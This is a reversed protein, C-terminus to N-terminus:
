EQARDRFEEYWNQVVRVTPPLADESAGVTIFRQGDASIDYPYPTRLLEATRFLKSPSGVSFNPSTTVPIVVLWDGEVYFLENGDHSWRPWGGGNLSVKTKGGGDPFRRVYVEYRGSEDSLYAVFRTDPSFQAAWETFPEQLFLVDEFSGDDDKYERYGIDWKGGLRRDFLLYKEDASWQVPFADTGLTPLLTPKGGLDAPTSLLRWDDEVVKLSTIRDGSPSWIPAVDWHEDFTLQTKVPRDVDHLWIDDSGNKGVVAVRRGDPSLRPMAIMLQSQGISGVKRGGRDRLVLQDAGGRRDLYVLTGDAALSPGFGEPAVLFTEGRPQLTETSVPWAWIGPTLGNGPDRRTLIHGTPSYIGDFGETELNEIEGTDLNYLWRSMLLVLREGQQRGLFHPARLRVDEPISGQKLMKPAGGGSAVEYLNSPSGAGFVITSGDPSWAAGRFTEAYPLECLPTVTGGAVSIKKLKGDALFAILKSDASWSLALGSIYTRSVGQTGDLERPNRRDLDQIWISKEGEGAMYAIHRGNPSIVPDSIEMGPTFSFYLPRKPGPQPPPRLWMVLIIAMAVILLTSLGVLAFRQWRPSPRPRPVRASSGSPKESTLQKRLARLDVALEDVHQYREEPSKAMAKQVIRDLDIPVGVRLATIPEPEQHVIAYAVADEREGEFPLKGTVMEYIAVGLSWIDTRRDTPERRAQEPSMYAPTGLITETKTLRSRDALQALGFDMIKVQGEAALMLNAPKIDRHVIEKQHAAKLGQATQVAIDLAEELKLPRESVKDKLTQGELYAMALFTQGEVEDIEYVPCINQHDLRAAAKAERVFRAKYEPDDLAHAALFKLAVPRDLNTDQAKYVVGMGGEGIKGSIRYHSITRGQSISGDGPQIAPTDAAPQPEGVGAPLPPAKEVPYIFRYGRRPVTEVFRPTTASDDLVERLKQIATNVGKEFDVFTGNPWLRARLEERAVVDGPRELLMLLVQFPQEQLRLKVGNKRLEGSRPDMEFVGFRLPRQLQPEQPM